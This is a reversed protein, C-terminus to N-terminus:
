GLLAAVRALAQEADLGYATFADGRECVVHATIRCSKGLVPWRRRRIVFAGIQDARLHATQGAQKKQGRFVVRDEVFAIGGTRYGVLGRWLWFGCIGAAVLLGFWLSDAFHPWARALVLVGAVLAAFLLVPWLICIVLFGKRPRLRPREQPDFGFAREILAAMEDQRVCPIFLESRGKSKSFGACILKASCQRQPWILFLRRVVVGCVNKRVVLAKQSAILGRRTVLNHQNEALVFRGNQFLIWGASVMWCLVLGLALFGAARPIVAPLLQSTGDVAAYLEEAFDRGLVKGLQNVVPAAFLLGAAPNSISVAALLQSRLSFTVPNRMTGPLPPILLKL